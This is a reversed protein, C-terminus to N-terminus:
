RRPCYEGVRVATREAGLGSRPQGLCHTHDPELRYGSVEYWFKGYTAQEPTRTASNLSGMTKVENYEAAYEASDLAPPAEPVRFQDARALAWTDVFQWAPAFIFGDFPPTYQWRGPHLGPRTSEASTPDTMRVKTVLHGGRSAIGLVNRARERSGKPLRHLSEALKADLDSQQAPFFRSLVHHAAAAAAATPNAHSDQGTINTGNTSLFSPTLLTM